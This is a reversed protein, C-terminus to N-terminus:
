LHVSLPHDPSMAYLMAERTSLDQAPPTIVGTDISGLGEASAPLASICFAVVFIVILFNWSKRM